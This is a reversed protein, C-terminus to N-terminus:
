RGDPLSPGSPSAVDMTTCSYSYSDLCTICGGHQNSSLQDGAHMHHLRSLAAAVAYRTCTKFVCCLDDPSWLFRNHSKIPEANIYLRGSSIDKLTVVIEPRLLLM